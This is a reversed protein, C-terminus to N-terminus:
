VTLTFVYDGNPLSGGSAIKGWQLRDILKEAAVQANGKFSLAHDFPVTESITRDAFAKVRSGRHTTPPLYRVQIARM